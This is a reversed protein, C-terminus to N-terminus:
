TLSFFVHWTLLPPAPLNLFFFFFAPPYVSSLYMEFFIIFLYGPNKQSFYSVEKEVLRNAVLGFEPFLEQLVFLSLESFCARGTVDSFVHRPHPFRDSCGALSWSGDDWEAALGSQEPGAAASTAPVQPKGEQAEGAPKRRKAVM